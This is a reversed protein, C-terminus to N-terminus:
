RSGIHTWVVIKPPHKIDFDDMFVQFDSLKPPTVDEPYIAGAMPEQGFDKGSLNQWRDSSYVVVQTFNGKSDTLRDVTLYRYERKRSFCGLIDSVASIGQKVNSRIEPFTAVMKEAFDDSKVDLIFGFGIKTTLSTSM